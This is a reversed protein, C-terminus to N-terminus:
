ENKEAEAYLCHSFLPRRADALAAWRSHKLLFATLLFGLLCNLGFLLVPPIWLGSVLMTLTVVGVCIAIWWKTVAEGHWELKYEIIMPSITLVYLATAIFLTSLFIGAYVTATPLLNSVVALMSPILCGYILLLFTRNLATFRGIIALPTKPPFQHRLYQGHESLLAFISPFSVSCLLITLVRSVGDDHSFILTDDDGRLMAVCPIVVVYCFTAGACIRLIVGRTGRVSDTCQQVLPHSKLALDEYEKANPWFTLPVFSAALGFGCEGLLLFYNGVEPVWFCATRAIMTYFVVSAILYALNKRSAVVGVQELDDKVTTPFILTQSPFVFYRLINFL